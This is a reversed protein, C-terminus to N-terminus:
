RSETVPLRVTFVTGQSSSTVEITGGHATVVEHAIALGLGTGDPRTTFFPTFLRARVEDSIGPGRDAVTITWSTATAEAGLGVWAVPSGRQVAFANDVLNGLAGLLAREDGWLRPANAPPAALQELTVGQAEALPAVNAWLQAFLHDLAIPEHARLGGRAFILMDAILEEMRRLRAKIRDIRERRQAEDSGPLALHDLFLLAASLPTRLQHALGAVLEGMAALREQRAIAERLRVAETVDQVVVIEGGQDPLRSWTLAVRREGGEKRWLFEDPSDTPLLQAAFTRWPTGAAVAEGFWARAAANSETIVQDSSIVVVGVPLAEMLVELRETLREARAELQAYAETLRDSARMFEAFAAALQEPTLGTAVSSPQLSQEMASM